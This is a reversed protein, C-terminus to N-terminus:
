SVIINEEIEVTIQKIQENRIGPSGWGVFAEEIIKKIREVGFGKDILKSPIEIKQIIWKIRADNRFSNGETYEQAEVNVFEKEIYLQYGMWSEGIVGGRGVMIYDRERDIAWRRYVKTGGYMTTFGIASVYEKDKEEVIKEYSFAM